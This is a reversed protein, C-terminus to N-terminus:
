AHLIYTSVRCKGRERAPLDPPIYVDMPADVTTENRIRISIKWIESLWSLADLVRKKYTKSGVRPPGSGPKQQRDVSCFYYILGYIPIKIYLFHPIFTPVHRAM